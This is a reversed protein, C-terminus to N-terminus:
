YGLVFKFQEIGDASRQIGSRNEIYSLYGSLITFNPLSHTLLTRATISTKGYISSNDTPTGVTNIVYVLNSAPDFSLVTGYFSPNNVDGQYIIEDRVFLGFGPAVTLQTTTNYITGTAPSPNDQQSTPNIVIGLQYYTIDTPIVGSESGNFEVSFMVHSCGLESVPDYGHGGIPSTPAIATAGSGISSTISVNAYTYNSGPNLVLIDTIVGDTVQQSTVSAAAGTGDGTISVTITANALDYGSGGETVNIVDLSGAGATTVLPNPTNAGIPIPIWQTNMFQKKIGGDITYIYKWKYGDSGTKINNTGYSGPEFYPEVTSPQGNPYAVSSNNWLCKFVQDYRNRVYFNYVNSGDTNLAFMDIDDRFYDYTVGSTWDVRAIVPSLDNSTVQKAVFMNKFVQKIYKLTQTPQDPNADSGWPDVRSLFCYISSLPSSSGPLSVVPSFYVQEVSSVKSNYTLINKSTM